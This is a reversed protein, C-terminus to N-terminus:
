DDALLKELWKDIFFETGSGNSFIKGHKDILVTTPWSQVGYAATTAGRAAKGTGEIRCYGGGDLAIAFPIKRGNWNKKSLEGIKKELEKVSNMSDDHIGIIVLGKDHYKDYLDMLDPMGGVCPGCWTGWFDLLVVKGRLDALKIPESNIWGKIQQLEPAEKVIDKPREAPLNLDAGMEKAGAKELMQVIDTHGRKKAGWLATRTRGDDLTIKANVDAGNELLLKVIDTHGNSAAAMLATTGREDKANVDVGKELLLKVIEIHGNYAAMKMMDTRDAANVDTGKELLLKVIETHGYFAAQALATKGGYTDKANVDAGKELLLKVIETDGKTAAMMLVNVPGSKANVDAGKELLLKVVETHGQQAAMYLATGGESDKANVDAGNGLLLKVTETHGNNAAWILATEGGANVDAGKELLLKVIETRGMAAPTTLIMYDNVDAGKKLLLKVIETHGNYAAIWLATAGYAPKMVSVEADNEILLKVVKADGNYAASILHWVYNNNVRTNIDAGDALLTQVALLNGDQVARLFQINMESVDAGAFGAATLSIFMMFFLIRKM